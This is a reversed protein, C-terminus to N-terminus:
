SQEGYTQKRADYEAALKKKTDDDIPLKDTGKYKKYYSSVNNAISDLYDNASSNVSNSGVNYRQNQEALAELYQNDLHKQYHLANNLISASATDVQPQSIPTPNSPKISITNVEQNDKYGMQANIAQQEEKSRDSTRLGRLSGLNPM